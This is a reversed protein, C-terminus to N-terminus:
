NGKNKSKIGLILLIIATILLIIALALFVYPLAYLADYKFTYKSDNGFERGYAKALNYVAKSPRNIQAIYAGILSLFSLVFTIVSSIILKKSQNKKTANAATSYQNIPSGIQLAYQGGPQAQAATQSSADVDQGCKPCFKTIDDLQNGCNHLIANIIGGIIIHNKHAQRSYHSAFASFLASLASQLVPLRM